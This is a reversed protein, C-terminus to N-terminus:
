QTSPLGGSGTLTFGQKGLEDVVFQANKNGRQALDATGQAVSQLQARARQSEAFAADQNVRLEDLTSRQQFLQWSQFGTMALLSLGFLLVPVFLSRAQGPM